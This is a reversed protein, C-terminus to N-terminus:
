ADYLINLTQMWDLSYLVRKHKVSKWFEKFEAANARHTSSVDKVVEMLDILGEIIMNIQFEYRQSFTGPLKM